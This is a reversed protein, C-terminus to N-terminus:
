TAGSCAAASFASAAAVSGALLPLLSLALPAAFHTDVWSAM